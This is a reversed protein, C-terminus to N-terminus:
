VILSGTIVLLYFIQLTRSLTSDLELNFLISDGTLNGYAMYGTIGLALAIVTVFIMIWWIIKIFQSPDRCQSYYNLIAANGEFITM